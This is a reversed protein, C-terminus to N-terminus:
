GQISRAPDGLNVRSVDNPRLGINMKIFEKFYKALRGANRGATFYSQLETAGENLHASFILRYYGLASYIPWIKKAVRMAELLSEKSGVSRWHEFCADLLRIFVPDGEKLQYRNAVASNFSILPFFVHAIVSEGWDILTMEDSDNKILVNNDHFDCHDLTEPLRYQSLLECLSSLVPLLENLQKLETQTIGDQLLLADKAIMAQYLRPLETLRWDPVGLELFTNVHNAVKYQIDTNITLAGCLLDAQFNIKLRDRLPSGFDKMLFCNLEQNTALVSSVKAQFDDYLRQMIAAELFLTPPTQKLYIMGESSFFRYVSSYPTKQIEEPARSLRYGNSLLSQKAWEILNETNEM